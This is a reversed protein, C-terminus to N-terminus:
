APRSYKDLGPLLYLKLTLNQFNLKLLALTSCFLSVILIHVIRCNKCYLYRIEWSDWDKITQDYMYEFSQRTDRLTKSLFTM